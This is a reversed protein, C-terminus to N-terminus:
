VQISFDKYSWKETMKVKRKKPQVIVKRAELKGNVLLNRFRENLLNGEPKLRRLSEQLEDPLVVELPKEPIIANGRKRRRLVRDDGDEVEPTENSPELEDEQGRKIMVMIMQETQKAKDGMKKEHKAIREAEKRRKAKNRQAPTKRQPRKKKLAESDENETEFGEWASEDDAPNAEPMAALAQVRAEKEAAAKAQALRLREAEVEKAGEQNLLDDWEEFSPNYSTGANPQQVARVPRGDATMPIPAKKLTVPAVKARPKPVYETSKDEPVSAPTEAAWLDFGSTEIDLKDADLRSTSDLSSKLRRVEKKSVWDPKQRKNTSELVGDTVASHQRKRSDVAPVASRKALIQDVKLPKQIKYKRKIDESGTTDLAFLEESTKEAVPGGQIIQERLSDLGHQVEEIDVNKRWAKKGKRSPQKHQQPASRASSSM